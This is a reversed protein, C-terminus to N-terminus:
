ELKTCIPYLSRLKIRAKQTTFRWIVKSKEKNRAQNWAKLESKLQADDKIRRDLCQESLVSLEIEAVNLWSGNRPTYHIELRRALRHADEPEFAAYLSAIQHTNLNDCVLKVKRAQPYDEDLLRKIEEAWDVRTRQPRSGVRRWGQVPDFFMFIARVGHREYHYDEKVVRGPKMPIPEYVHGLLQKSTEDMCILPEEPCHEATYLDLIDEM